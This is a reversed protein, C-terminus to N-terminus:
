ATTNKFGPFCIKWINLLIMTAIIMIVRSEKEFTGDTNVEIEIQGDIDFNEPENEAWDELTYSGQDLVSLDTSYSIEITTSSSMCASDVIDCKEIEELLRDIEPEISGDYYWQEYAEIMEDEEVKEDIDFGLGSQPHFSNEAPNNTVFVFIGSEESSNFSFGKEQFEITLNQIQKM